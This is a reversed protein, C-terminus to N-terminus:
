VAEWFCRKPSQVKGDKKLEKIAKSVDDKEISAAEAIEGPRMPKGEKKLTDYVLKENTEM